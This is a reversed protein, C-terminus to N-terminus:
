YLCLELQILEDTLAGDAVQKKKRYHDVV